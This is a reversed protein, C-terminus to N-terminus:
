PLCYEQTPEEYIQISGPEAPLLSEVSRERLISRRGLGLPHPNRVLAKADYAEHNKVYEKATDLTIHGVSGMFKGEGWLSRKQSDKWYFCGLMHECTMFLMRSSYGKLLMIAKAPSMSPRLKAIVHIHDSAVELEDIDFKYRRAAEVLFIECLKQLKVNSFVKYRYKTVWQFHWTSWGVGHKYAHDQYISM